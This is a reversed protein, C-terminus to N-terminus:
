GESGHVLVDTDTSSRFVHGLGRLEERLMPRDSIKSYLVARVAETENAIPQRRGAVDIISVRRVGLVADPVEVVGADDPGRLTMVDLM